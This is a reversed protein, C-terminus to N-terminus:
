LKASLCTMAADTMVKQDAPDIQGGDRMKNELEVYKGFPIGKSVNEVMCDCAAKPAGKDTCGKVFNAKVQEPWEDGALLNCGGLAMAALVVSAKISRM